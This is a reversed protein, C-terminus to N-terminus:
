NNETKLGPYSTVRKFNLKFTPEKEIGCKNDPNSIHEIKSLDSSFTLTEDSTGLNTVITSEIQMLSSSVYQEGDSLYTLVVEMFLSKNTDFVYPFGLKNNSDKYFTNYDSISIDTTETANEVNTDPTTTPKCNDIICTLTDSTYGLSIKVNNIYPRENSLGNPITTKIEFDSVYSYDMFPYNFIAVYTGATNSDVKFTYEASTSIVRDKFIWCLFPAQTDDTPVARITMTSGKEYRGNGGEVRGHRSYSVLTTIEYSPIHQECGAFTLGVFAILMALM